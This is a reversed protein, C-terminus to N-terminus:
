RRSTTPLDMDCEDATPTSRGHGRRDHAIVRFGHNLFFMQADWDDACAALRSQLGHTSGQGWDKYYIQATKPPSPAWEDAEKDFITARV